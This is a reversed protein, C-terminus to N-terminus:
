YAPHFQAQGAQQMAAAAALGAASMVSAESVGGFRASHEQAKARLTAISNSRFDDNINSQFDDKVNGVTAAMNNVIGGNQINPKTDPLEQETDSEDGSSSDHDNLGGFGFERADKSEKMLDSGLTHAAEMSKRHMGSVFFSIM